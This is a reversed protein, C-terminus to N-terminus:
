RNLLEALAKISDEPSGASKDVSGFAGSQNFDREARPDSSFGVVLGPFKDGLLVRAVSSGKLTDSLHYDLLVLNAKTQLIQKVLEEISQGNYKIFAANGDTAVMLHPAFCELLGQVDDVMVINKNKLIETGEVPEPPKIWENGSGLEKLTANIKDILLPQQSTFNKDNLEM